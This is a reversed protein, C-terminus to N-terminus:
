LSAQKLLQDLENDNINEQEVSLQKLITLTSKM